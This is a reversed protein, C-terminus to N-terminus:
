PPGGSWERVDPIAERGSGSMWSPIESLKWVDQLDEQGRGSMRSPREVAGPCELPGEPSGDPGESCEWFNSLAEQVDSLTERGSGSM